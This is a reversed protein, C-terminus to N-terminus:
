RPKRKNIEKQAKNIAKKAKKGAKKVAKQAKKVARNIEQRNAEPVMEMYEGFKAKGKKYADTQSVDAHIDKYTESMDKGMGSLTEKLTSLGSGGKEIEKKLNKRIEDGKKPSFLIGLATGAVIGALLGKLGKLM